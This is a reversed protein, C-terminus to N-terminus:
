LNEIIGLLTEAKAETENWENEPVSDKTIGGGVFLHVQEKDMKLCRLNVFLEDSDNFNIPGLFGCYLERDHPENESIIDFAQNTPIGCVAPTPHLKNIIEIPNASTEFNFSTCIHAINGAEKTFPGLLEPKISLSSLETLIYDSVLQQETKEKEAWEYQDNKVQTGALAMTKFGKSKRKLFTEPTAGIWTGLKSDNLIYVFADPYAMRLADFLEIPSANYASSEVRSLIIKSLGHDCEEIYSQCIDLYEEKSLSKIENGNGVDFTIMPNLIIENSEIFHFPLKSDFSSIVFGSEEPWESRELTSLKGKILSYNPDSPLSFCVFSDDQNLEM